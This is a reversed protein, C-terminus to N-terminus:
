SANPAHSIQLPSAAVVTASVFTREPARCEAGAAVHRVRRMVRCNDLPLFSIARAERARQFESM